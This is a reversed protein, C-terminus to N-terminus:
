KTRPGMQRKAMLSFLCVIRSNMQSEAILSMQFKTTPGFPAKLFHGRVSCGLLTEVGMSRGGMAVDKPKSRGCHCITELHFM